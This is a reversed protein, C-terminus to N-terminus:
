GVGVALTVRYDRDGISIANDVHEIGEIGKLINLIRELEVGTDESGNYGRLAMLVELSITMVKDLDRGDSTTLPSKEWKTVTMDENMVVQGWRFDTIISRFGDSATLLLKVYAGACRGATTLDNGMPPRPSGASSGRTIYEHMSRQGHRLPTKSGRKRAGSGHRTIKKTLPKKHVRRTSGRVKRCHRGTIIEQATRVTSTNLKAHCARIEMCATTLITIAKHVHKIDKKSMNYETGCTLTVRRRLESKAVDTWVGKWIYHRNIDEIAMDRIAEILYSALPNTSALKTVAGSLDQLAQERIDELEECQCGVLMHYENDVDDCLMCCEQLRIDQPDSLGKVRNGGHWYKDYVLKTVRARSAYLTTFRAYLKNIGRLQLTSWKGSAGRSHRYEDRTGLYKNQKDECVLKQPKKLQPTGQHDTVVWHGALTLCEMLEVAEMTLISDCRMVADVDGGAIKDAFVNGREDLSYKEPSTRREPHARVHKANLPGTMNSFINWLVAMDMNGARRAKKGKMNTAEKIASKCDSFITASGRRNDRCYVATALALTEMEYANTLGLKEGGTIHIAKVGRNVDRGDCPWVVAAKCDHVVDFPSPFSERMSGDTYMSGNLSEGNIFELLRSTQPTVPQTVTADRKSMALVQRFIGKKWNKDGSLILKVGHGVLLFRSITLTTAAGRSMTARSLRLHDSRRPTKCERGQRRNEIDWLRIFYDDTGYKLGVVEVVHGDRMKYPFDISDFGWCDGIKVGGPQMFPVRDPLKWQLWEIGIIDDWQLTGDDGLRTIDEIASIGAAGLMDEQAGSVEHGHRRIFDLVPEGATDTMIAGQRVLRLNSAWLWDVLSDAWLAPKTTRSRGLALKARYDCNINQQMSARLLLGHMAADVHVDGHRSRTIMCIKDQQICDSIRPLGIGGYAVPTYLLENPFSGMLRIIRKFGQSILGDLEQCEKFGWASFRARYRVKAYVSLLVAKVQLERDFRCCYIHRLCERILGKVQLFSTKDKDSLDVTVGLYKM